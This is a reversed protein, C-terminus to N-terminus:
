PITILTPRGRQFRQFQHSLQLGTFPKFFSARIGLSSRIVFGWHRIVVRGERNPSGEDNPIRCEANKEHVARREKVDDFTKFTEQAFQGVGNAPWDEM